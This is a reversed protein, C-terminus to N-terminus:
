GEGRRMGAPSIGYYKKSCYSFYHQDSYGCRCAVDAIKLKEHILSRAAEMRRKILLNVFTDGAYRKMNASLYNPSVHLRESVSHLSLTEDMYHQEIMRLAQDCLASIGDRRREGNIETYGLGGEKLM